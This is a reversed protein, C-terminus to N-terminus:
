VDFEFAKEDMHRGLFDIWEILFESLSKFLEILLVFVIIGLLISPIYAFIGLISSTLWFVFEGALVGCWYSFLLAVLIAGFFSVWLVGALLWSKPHKIFQKWAWKIFFQFTM